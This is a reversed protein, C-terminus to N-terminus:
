QMGDSSGGNLLYKNGAARLLRTRAEATQLDINVMDKLAQQLDSLPGLFALYRQKALAVAKSARDKEEGLVTLEERSRDAEETYRVNLDSLTLQDGSVEAQRAETEARAAKEEADIRFGEFLPLSVGVFVSYDEPSELRTDSLYGTSGAVELVPLNEASYRAATESSSKVELEAQTILPSKGEAAWGAAEVPLGSPSPCSLTQSDAGTLLALRQLGALYQRDFDGAQLKADALQDEILLGQVESYQGNRVFRKVTDQIGTLEDALGQWAERDGRLRVTELYLDLAQEDVLETQFKVRERSAEHEYRAAASQHWVSLDLLDWKAYADAAPGKRYPSAVLGPFGNLGATGFGSSSGPFGTSDVADLGLSPFFGSDAARSFEGSEKERSIAAQLLPSNKEALRLAQGMTLDAAHAGDWFGFFLLLFLRFFGRKFKIM